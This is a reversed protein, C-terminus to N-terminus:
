FIPRPAPCLASSPSPCHWWAFQVQAYLCSPARLCGRGFARARSRPPPAYPSLSGPTLSRPETDNLGLAAAAAACGDRTTIFRLNNTAECTATKSLM